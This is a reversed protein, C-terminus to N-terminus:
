PQFAFQGSCRGVCAPADLVRDDNEPFPSLDIITLGESTRFATARSDTSWVPASAPRGNGCYAQPGSPFDESCSAADALNSDLWTKNGTAPEILWLQPGYRVSLFREDPSFEFALPSSNIGELDFIRPSAIRKPRADLDAFYVYLFRSTTRAFALYRGSSSLARASGAAQVSSFSYGERKALCSDIGTDDVDGPCFGELTSVELWASAGSVDFIRIEGHHSGDTNSVDAVCAIRERDAAWALLRSCTRTSDAPEIVPDVRGTEAPFLQPLGSATLAATYRGSPAVLAIKRHAVGFWLGDTLDNYDTEGSSIVYFGTDTPQMAVAPLYNLNVVRPATFGASGLQSYYPVRRQGVPAAHFAVFEDAVWYLESEVAAPTSTLPSPSAVSGPVPARVGGLHTQGDTEFAVALVTSTASWAYSIVSDEGFVLAHENFNTLDLLSLHRGNPHEEDAGYRYALFTGDPSFQFDYTGVAHALPPPSPAKALPDLVHLEPGAESLSTYAFWCTTRVQLPLTFTRRLGRADKVVLTLEMDKQPAADAHLVAASPNDPTRGISWGAPQPDLYWTHPDVGGGVFFTAQYPKGACAPTLHEPSITCTPCTDPEGGQGGQGADPQAGAMGAEALAGGVAQEAGGVVSDGGKGAGGGKGATSSPGEGDGGAGAEACSSDLLCPPIVVDEICASLSLASLLVSLGWGWASWRRQQSDGRRSM